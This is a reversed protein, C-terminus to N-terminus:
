KEDELYKLIKQIVEQRDEHSFLNAGIHAYYKEYTLIGKTVIDCITYHCIKKPLDNLFKDPGNIIHFYLEKSEEKM